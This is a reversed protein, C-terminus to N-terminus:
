KGDLELTKEEDLSSKKDTQTEEDAGEIPPKIDKNLKNDVV